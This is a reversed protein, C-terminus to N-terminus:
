VAAGLVGGPGARRGPARATSRGDPLQERDDAGDNGAGSEEMRKARADAMALFTGSPLDIFRCAKQNRHAWLIAQYEPSYVAFPYLISRVPVTESYAMIAVPPKVGDLCLQPILASLDGPGEILVLEPRIEDLLRLLHHAGGPSLHRVGFLIPM